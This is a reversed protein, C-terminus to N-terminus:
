KNGIIRADISFLYASTSGKEQRIQMYLLLQHFSRTIFGEQLHFLFRLRACIFSIAFCIRCRKDSIPAFEQQGNNLHCILPESSSQVFSTRGEFSYSLQPIKELTYYYFSKRQVRTQEYALRILSVVSYTLFHRCHKLMLSSLRSIMM